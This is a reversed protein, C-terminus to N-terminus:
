QKGAETLAGAYVVEFLIRDPSAFMVQYYTQGEQNGTFEPRHCPTDFLPAVGRERLFTAVRDVDAVSTAGIGLHNLGPGDYDNAVDTAQTSFWCSVGGQGSLGLMDPTDLIARWGLFDFLDRYFPLNALRVNFQLHQLYTQM